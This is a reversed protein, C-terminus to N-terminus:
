SQVEKPHCSDVIRWQDATLKKGNARIKCQHNGGMDPHMTEIGLSAIFAQLQEIRDSLDVAANLADRVVDTLHDDGGKLWAVPPPPNAPRRKRM